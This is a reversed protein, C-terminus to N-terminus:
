KTPRASLMARYLPDICGTHLMATFVRTGAEIMEPTPELPVVVGEAARRSQLERLATAHAEWVEGVTPPKAKEESM